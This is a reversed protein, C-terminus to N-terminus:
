VNVLQKTSRISLLHKWCTRRTFVVQQLLVSEKIEILSQIITDNNCLCWQRYFAWSTPPVFSTTRLPDIPCLWIGPNVNDFCVCWNNNRVFILVLVELYMFNWGILLQIADYSPYINGFSMSMNIAVLWNQVSVDAIMLHCVIKFCQKKEPPVNPVDDIVLLYLYCSQVCNCQIKSLM